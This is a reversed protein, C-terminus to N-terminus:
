DRANKGIGSTGFVEGTQKAMRWHESFESTRIQGGAERFIYLASRLSYGLRICAACYKVLSIQYLKTATEAM